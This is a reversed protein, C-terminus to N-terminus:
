AATDPTCFYLRVARASCIRPQPTATTRHPQPATHSHLDLLFLLVQMQLSTMSQALGFVSVVERHRRLFTVEQLTHGHRFFPSCDCPRFPSCNCSPFPSCDCSPFLSCDCSPFRAAMLLSQPPRVVVHRISSSCDRPPASCFCATAAQASGHALASALATGHARGAM